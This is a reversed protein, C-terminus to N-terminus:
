TAARQQPAVLVLAARPAPTRPGESDSWPGSGAASAAAEEAAVVPSLYIVGRQKSQDRASRGGAAATARRASLAAGMPNTRNVVGSEDYNPDVSPAQSVRVPYSRSVVAGEGGGGGGGSALVTAARLPNPRLIVASASMATGLVACAPGAPAPAAMSGALRGRGGYGGSRQQTGSTRPQLQRDPEAGQKRPWLPNSVDFGAAGPPSGSGASGAPLARPRRSLPKSQPRQPQPQQKGRKKDRRARLFCCALLVCCCLLLVFGPPPPPSPPYLRLLSPTCPQKCFTTAGGM